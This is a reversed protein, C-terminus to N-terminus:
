EGGNEKEMKDLKEYARKFIDTLVVRDEYSMVKYAEIFRKGDPVAIGIGAPTEERNDSWGKLYAESVGFLKAMAEVKENPINEIAGTEYKFATARSVGIARAVAAMTMQKEERLMKIREGQTMIIVEGSTYWLTERQSVSLMFKVNENKQPFM